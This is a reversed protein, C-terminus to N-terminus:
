CVAVIHVMAWVMVVTVALAGICEVAVQGPRDVGQSM